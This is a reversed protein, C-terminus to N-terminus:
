VHAMLHPLLTDIEVPKVLHADFGAALARARDSEQGYGTVAVLRMDGSYERRLVRALEYGDMGPLGIDVLVVQPKTERAITLAALGDAAAHVRYGLLALLRCLAKRGDDNDDVVLVSEVAEGHSALDMVARPPPSSQAVAEVEAAPLEIFITTGRGTGESHARVTGGHLTILNRAITLGLGLGSQARDSSQPRQVFLDFVRELMEPEIGEGQDRIQIVIRDGQREAHFFVQEGTQSYKSANTLLNALAQVLRSSDANIALGLSDIDVVAIQQKREFLPRALEIAQAAVVALEIRERHLEVAGQTIRSVDLLDDVLRRLHFVQREIVSIEPDDRGTRRM